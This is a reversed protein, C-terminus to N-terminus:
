TLKNIMKFPQHHIYRWFVPVTQLQINDIKTKDYRLLVLVMDRIVCLLENYRYRWLEVIRSKLIDLVKWLCGACLCHRFFSSDAAYAVQPFM